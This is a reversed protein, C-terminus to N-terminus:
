NKHRDDIHLVNEKDVMCCVAYVNHKRCIEYYKATWAMENDDLESNVRCHGAGGNGSLFDTEYGSTYKERKHIFHQM